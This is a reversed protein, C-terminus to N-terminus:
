RKGRQAMRRGELRNRRERRRELRRKRAGPVVSLSALLVGAPSYRLVRGWAESPKIVNHDDM